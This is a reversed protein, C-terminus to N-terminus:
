SAVLQLARRADDMAIRMRTAVNYGRDGRASLLRLSLTPNILLTTVEAKPTDRLVLFMGQLARAEYPAEDPFCTALTDFVDDLKPGGDLGAEYLNQLIAHGRVAGGNYRDCLDLIDMIAEYGATRAAGFRESATLRTRHDLCFFLDAEQERALGAFVKAWLLPVNNDMALLVRQQGDIGWLSGDDRRSVFLVGALDDSWDGPDWKVPDRQYGGNRQYDFQIAKVSVREFPVATAM